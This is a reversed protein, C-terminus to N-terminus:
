PKPFVNNQKAWKDWMAQMRAARDPQAAFLDNLETQDHNLDYLHWAQEGRDRILKFGDPTIVSRGGEHEGFIAPYNEITKEGDLLPLLSVGQLAHPSQGAFSGPLKTGALELTTPMLDLVHLRSTNISDGPLKLGAPWHVIMPTREGGNYQSMKSKRYPTNAVNAWDRGIYYFTQEGGALRTLDDYHYNIPQGDHALTPRDFGPDEYREGSAGNDSLFIILTNDWQGADKLARFVKGLGQDMRDIMAAHTQFLATQFRKAEPTLKAWGQGLTGPLPAIAPDILGAKVMRDYRARRIADFGADYVGDYKAIDEPLAHLPWHPANNALYMFFPQKSAANEKIYAAAHDNIADTIYFHEPITKVPTEGDVLAFPYYYNVLGWLGGWYVDFGRRTPYQEIPCFTEPFDQRNLDRMHDPRQLTNALHWKGFAATRYGATKLVEAVTPAEAKIHGLYGPKDSKESMGGMGAQHPYLGTLLAARTPCCRAMNYMGTFRAGDKALADLNPTKAEGGFCGLDSYGLDDAVIWLVNPRTANGAPQALTTACAVM